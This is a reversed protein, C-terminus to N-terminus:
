ACGRRGGAEGLKGSEEQTEVSVEVTKAGAELAAEMVWRVADLVEERGGSLVTSDPGAEHVALGAEGVARLAAEVQAQPSQGARPDPFIRLEAVIEARNHGPM